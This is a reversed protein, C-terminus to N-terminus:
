TFTHIYSSRTHKIHAYIYTNAHRYIYHIYTDICKDQLIREIMTETEREMEKKGEMVCRRKGRKRKATERGGVEVEEWGGWEENKGQVM